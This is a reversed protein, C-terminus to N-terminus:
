RISGDDNFNEERARYKALEHELVRLRELIEPLHLRAAEIRKEKQHDRAPFGSVISGKPINGIVGSRAAVISGDEIRVHDKVGSQGALTVNDGIEVSGSIGTLAVILCNKGIKVNHAIHVLNDIKTGSGIITAGTKAKDVTSNAGIEVKEGIDVIGIHTLKSNGEKSPLYGFGDAGIVVGAHLIVQKGIRCRDYITVSPHIVSYEGISVGNGIYVNPFLVCGDGISAGKGIYCNPGIAVANGLSVDDSVITGPGIGVPPLNEPRAFHELVEAFADTPNNARIITKGSCSGDGSKAIICSAKSKVAQEFFKPTEALVIDGEVADGVAAVGIIRVDPSGEVEGGIIAALEGSTIEM